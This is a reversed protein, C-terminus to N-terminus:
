KGALGGDGGAPRRMRRTLRQPLPPQPNHSQASTAVSLTRDSRSRRHPRRISRPLARAGVPRDAGGVSTDREASGSAWSSPPSASPRGATRWSWRARLSRYTRGGVWLPLREQVRPPRRVGRLRLAGTTSPSTRRAVGPPRPPRRRSTGRPRRLPRRAPRVGRGAIGGRVRPHASRRDGSRAHRLAQRHGAPPPLRAGARTAFRISPAPPCTASRRWHTGTAAGRRDEVSAPVTVHESCTMHHYGLRDAAEAM